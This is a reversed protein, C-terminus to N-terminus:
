REPHDHSEGTGRVQAARVDEISRGAGRGDFAESCFASRKSHLM